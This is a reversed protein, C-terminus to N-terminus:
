PAFRALMEDLTRLLEALAASCANEKAHSLCDGAEQLLSQGATIADALAGSEKTLLVLSQLDADSGKLIIESLRHREATSSRDLLHLVPLTLKGKRLDSGLSKGAQAEDGALDLCDDYIQYATGLRMGLLRFAEVASAALLVLIVAFGGRLVISSNLSPKVTYLIELIASLTL